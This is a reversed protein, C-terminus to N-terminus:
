NKSAKSGTPYNQPYKNEPYYKSPDLLPLDKLRPRNITEVVQFPLNPKEILTREGKEVSDYKGAWLLEVYKRYNKMEM